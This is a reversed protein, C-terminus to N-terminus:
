WKYMLNNANNENIKSKWCEDNLAGLGRLPVWSYGVGRPRRSCIIHIIFMPLIILVNRSPVKRWIARHWWWDSKMVYWPVMGYGVLQRVVDSFWRRFGAQPRWIRGPLSHVSPAPYDRYRRGTCPLTKWHYKPNPHRLYGAEQPRAWIFDSIWGFEVMRSLCIITFLGFLSMLAFLLWWEWSRWLNGDDICPRLWVVKVWYRYCCLGLFSASGSCVMCFWALGRLQCSGGTITWSATNSAYTLSTRWGWWCKQWLRRRWGCPFAIGRRWWLCIISCLIITLM